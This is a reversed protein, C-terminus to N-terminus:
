RRDKQCPQEAWLRFYTTSFLSPARPLRPSVVGTDGEQPCLIVHIAKPFCLMLLPLCPFWWVSPVVLKAQLLDKQDTSASSLYYPCDGDHTVTLVNILYHPKCELEAVQQALTPM